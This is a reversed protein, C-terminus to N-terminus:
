GQARAVARFERLVDRVRDVLDVAACVNNKMVHEVCFGVQPGPEAEAQELLARVVSENVAHSRRIRQREGVADHLRRGVDAPVHVGLWRLFDLDRRRAVPAVSWVLPPAARGAATAAAHLDRRLAAAHGPELLIQSLAYGAGAAHKRLLREPEDLVPRRRTPITVVGLSAPRVPDQAALRLADEVGLGPHHETSRDGGVFLLHEIGHARTERLWGRLAEPGHHVTIRNVVAPRGVRRQLAAAFRRPEVPEYAGGLVEPVNVATVRGRLPDLRELAAHLAGDDGAPPPLAEFLLPPGHTWDVVGHSSAHHM